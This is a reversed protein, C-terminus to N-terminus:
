KVAGFAADIQARTTVTPPKANIGAVETAETAYAATVAASIAAATATPTIAAHAALQTKHTAYIILDQQFAEYAAIQASTLGTYHNWNADYTTPMASPALPSPSYGPPTPPISRRVLPKITQPNAGLTQAQASTTVILALVIIIKKM